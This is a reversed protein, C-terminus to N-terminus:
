SRAPFIGQLAIIFTLCLYPQMNNHPRGGGTFGIAKPNMQASPTSGVSAYNPPAQQRSAGVTHAWLIPNNTDGNTNNLCNANHNHSAMEKLSLTVFQEGSADGVKRPTLGIGNGQDMPANGQLNPLAFTTTGNGGYMTGLLSFLATNQSILITQGNCLAWGTPAFNGGFARIEGLWADAM